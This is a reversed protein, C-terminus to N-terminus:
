FTDPRCGANDDPNGGTLRSEPPPAKFTEGEVTETSETLVGVAHSNKKDVVRILIAAAFVKNEILFSFHQLSRAMLDHLILAVVTFDLIKRARLLDAKQQARNPRGVRAALKGSQEALAFRVDYMNVVGEGQNRRRNIPGAALGPNGDHLSEVVVPYKTRLGAEVAVAFGAFVADATMEPLANPM